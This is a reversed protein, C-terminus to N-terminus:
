ITSCNRIQLDEAAAASLLRSGPSKEVYTKKKLYQKLLIQLQIQCFPGEPM